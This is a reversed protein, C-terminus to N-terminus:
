ELLRAGSLSLRPRSALKGRVTVRVTVEEDRVEDIPRELVVPVAHFM